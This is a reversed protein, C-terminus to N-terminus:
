DSPVAPSAGEDQANLRDVLGIFAAGVASVGDPGADWSVSVVLDYPGRLRHRNLRFAERVARKWRNRVVAGGVKRGIALGLRSDGQSRRLARLRLPFVFLRKGERHVRDFDRKHILRAQRPFGFRKM